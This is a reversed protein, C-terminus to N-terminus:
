VPQGSHSRAAVTPRVRAEVRCKLWDEVECLVWAVSSGSVSLKIPRPFTPDFHKGAPNLREYIWGRSKGLMKMMLPLGLLQYRSVHIDARVTDCAPDIHEGSQAATKVPSLLAPFPIVPRSVPPMPHAAIDDGIGNGEFLANM